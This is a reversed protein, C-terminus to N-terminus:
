CDCLVLWHFWTSNSEVCLKSRWQLKKDNLHVVWSTHTAPWKHHKTFSFTSWWTNLWGRWESELWTMTSSGNVSYLIGPTWKYVQNTFLSLIIDWCKQSHIEVWTPSIKCIWDKGFLNNVQCCIPRCRWTCSPPNCLWNGGMILSTITPGQLLSVANM